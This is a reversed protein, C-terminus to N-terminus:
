VENTITNIKKFMLFHPGVNPIDFVPGKTHYGYKKYFESAGTRANFWLLINEQLKRLEKETKILLDKGLGQHRFQPLVAMGRLQYQHEESFFTNKNRMCSIVAVIQNKRFIGLHFTEQAEDGDFFCTSLPKGKRLVEQRVPYTESHHIKRIETQTESFNKM